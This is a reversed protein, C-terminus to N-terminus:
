VLNLGCDDLLHRVHLNMDLMSSESKSTINSCLGVFEFNECIYGCVSSGLAIIFRLREGVTMFVIM